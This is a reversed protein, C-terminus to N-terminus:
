GAWRGCACGATIRVVRCEAPAVTVLAIGGADCAPPPVFVAQVSPLAIALMAVAEVDRAVALVAVAVVPVLRGVTGVVFVHTRVAAGELLAISVAVILVVRAPAIGVAARVARVAPIPVIAVIGAVVLLPADVLDRPASAPRAQEG